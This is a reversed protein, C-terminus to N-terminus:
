TQSIIADIMRFMLFAMKMPYEEKKGIRLLVVEETITQVVVPYGMNGSDVVVAKKTKNFKIIWTARHLIRCLERTNHNDDLSLKIRRTCLYAKYVVYSYFEKRRLCLM